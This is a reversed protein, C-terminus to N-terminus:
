SMTSLYIKPDCLCQSILTASKDVATNIALERWNTANTYASHSSNAGLKDCEIIYAVSYPHKINLGRGKTAKPMKPNTCQQICHKTLNLM